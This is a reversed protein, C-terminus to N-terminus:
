QQEVKLLYEGSGNYDVVAQQWADRGALGPTISVARCRYAALLRAYLPILSKTKEVAQALDCNVCDFNNRVDLRLWYQDDVSLGSYWPKYTPDFRMLTEAGFESIQMVGREGIAGTYLPWFQSELGIIRKLLRAPVKSAVAANFIEVDFQNQWEIVKPRTERMGCADAAYTTPDLGSYGGPCDPTAVGYWILRGALWTYPKDTWLNSPEFAQDYLAAGVPLGPAPCIIEPPKQQTQHSFVLSASGNQINLWADLGCSAIVEDATPEGTHDVIAACGVVEYAPRILRLVYQDIPDTYACLEHAHYIDEGHLTCVHEGHEYTVVDLTLATLDNVNCSAIIDAQQPPRSLWLQCIQTDPISLMIYWTYLMLIM